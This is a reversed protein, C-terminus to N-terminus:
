FLYVLVVVVGLALLAILASYVITKLVAWKERKSFSRFITITFFLFLWVFLFAFIARIM